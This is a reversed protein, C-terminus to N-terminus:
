TRTNLLVAMKFNWVLLFPTLTTVTTTVVERINNGIIRISYRNLSCTLNLIRNSRGVELEVKFNAGRTLFRWNQCDDGLRYCNGDSVAAFPTFLFRPIVASRRLVLWIFDIFVQYNRVWRDATNVFFPSRGERIVSLCVRRRTDCPRVVLDRFDDRDIPGRSRWYEDPRRIEDRAQRTNCVTVRDIRRVNAPSASEWKSPRDSCAVTRYNGPWIVRDYTNVREETM